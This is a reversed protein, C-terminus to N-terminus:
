YVKTHKEWEGLKVSDLNNTLSKEVISDNLSPEVDSIDSDSMSDVDSESGLIIRKKICNKNFKIFCTQNNLNGILPFINEFDVTYNVASSTSFINNELQVECTCNDADLYRVIARHWLLYKESQKISM